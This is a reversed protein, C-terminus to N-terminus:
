EAYTAEGVQSWTGIDANYSYLVCRWPGGNPYQVSWIVVSSDDLPEVGGTLLPVAGSAAVLALFRRRDLGYVHIRDGRKARRLLRLLDRIFRIM